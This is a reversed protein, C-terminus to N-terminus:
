VAHTFELLVGDINMEPKYDWIGGTIYKISDGPLVGCSVALDMLGKERNAGDANSRMKRLITYKYKVPFKTQPAMKEMIPTAAEIWNKYEESKFRRGNKGTPFLNNASPPIPLIVSALSDAKKNKEKKCAPCPVYNWRGAPCDGEVEGTTRTDQCAECDYKPVVAQKPESSLLGKERAIKEWDRHQGM